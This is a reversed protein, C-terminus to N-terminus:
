PFISIENGVFVEAAPTQAIRNAEESCYPVIFQPGKTQRQQKVGILIHSSINYTDIASICHFRCTLDVRCCYVGRPGGDFKGFAAAVAPRLCCPWCVTIMSMRKPLIVRIDIVRGRSYGLARTHM